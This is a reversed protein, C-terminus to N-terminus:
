AFAFQGQDMIKQGDITLSPSNIIGRAYVAPSKAAGSYDGFGIHATGMVKEDELLSEGLRAKDNLGFGIEVVLRARAGDRRLLQRLVHAARGGKVHALKSDRITLRLPPTASRQDLVSQLVIVGNASHLVPTVYARGAPLSGCAYDRHLPVSEAAGHMQAISVKLDTGEATTLKLTRGITLIEALKRCRESLRKYNTETCRRLSDESAGAVLVVRTHTQTRLYNLTAPDAATRIILATQVAQLIKHFIEPLPATQKARGPLELFMTELREITAVKRFTQSISATRSDAALLLPQGPKMELFELFAFRAAKEVPSVHRCIAGIM